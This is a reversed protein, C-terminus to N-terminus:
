RISRKLRGHLRKAMDHFGANSITGSIVAGVLPLAKGAVQGGLRQAMRKALTASIQNVEDALAKAALASRLASDSAGTARLRVLRDFVTDAQPDGAMVGLLIVLAAGTAGDASDGDIHVLDRWGYLYTLKQICRILYGYFQVLDAPITAAAAAGGPIGAAISLVTTRRADRGISKKAIRDLQRETIGAKAPTTEISAAVLRPHKAGIAEALYQPRDVATGPLRVAQAVVDDFSPLMAQFDDFTERYADAAGGLAHKTSDVIQVFLDPRNAEVPPRSSPGDKMFAPLTETGTERSLRAAEAIQELAIAVGDESAAGIHWRAQAKVEPTANAVACAHTVHAFMALDNEADGVVCIEDTTIGMADQLLQIATAKNLGRPVVDFWTHSTNPFDLDPFTEILERQLELEEARDLNAIIGVKTAPYDPLSDCHQEGHLAANNIIPELETRTAGIWDARGEPSFTLLACGRRGDLVHLLGELLHREIAVERLLVGRLYVQQGNIVIGTQYCAEDHHMFSAVEVLNRGTTPGFAIGEDLCAHIATITRDSVQAQGPTILTDDMDSLVLKIM